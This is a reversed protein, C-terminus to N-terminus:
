RERARLFPKRLLVRTAVSKYPERLYISFSSTSGAEAAVYDVLECGKRSSRHSEYRQRNCTGARNQDEIWARAEDETKFGFETHSAAGKATVEVVFGGEVPIVRWTAKPSKANFVTSRM